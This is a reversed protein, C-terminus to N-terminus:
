GIISDRQVLVERDAEARDGATARSLAGVLEGQEETRLESRRAGPELLEDGLAGALAPLPDHGDVPLGHAIRAGVAVVAEEEGAPEGALVDGLVLLADLRKRLGAM